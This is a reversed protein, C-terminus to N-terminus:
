KSINEYIILGHDEQLILDQKGDGNMDGTTVFEGQAIPVISLDSTNLYIQNSARDSTLIEVNGDGNADIVGSLRQASASITSTTQCETLDPKIIRREIKPKCPRYGDCYGNNVEEVIELSQDKSSNALLFVRDLNGYYANRDFECPMLNWNWKNYSTISENRATKHIYFLHESSCVVLLDVIGDRDLDGAAMQFGPSGSKCAFGISELSKVALQQMNKVFILSHNRYDSVIVEVDSLSPNIQILSHSNAIDCMPQFLCYEKPLELRKIENASSNIDISVHILYRKEQQAIVSVFEKLPSNNPESNAIMAIARVAYNRYHELGNTKAEHYNGNRNGLLIKFGQTTGVLIDDTGDRDIDTLQTSIVTDALFKRRASSVQPMASSRLAPEGGLGLIVYIGNSLAGIIDQRGDNDLDRVIQAPYINYRSKYPTQYVVSADVLRKMTAPDTEKILYRRAGFSSLTILESGTLSKTLDLYGGLHSDIGDLSFSHKQIFTRTGRNNESFITYLTQRKITDIQSVVINTDIGPAVEVLSAVGPESSGFEEENWLRTPYLTAGNLYDNWVIWRKRSGDTTILDTKGDVDLDAAALISYHSSPLEELIRDNGFPENSSQRIISYISAHVGNGVLRIIDEQKDGNVDGSFIPQEKNQWYEPAADIKQSMILANNRYSLVQITGGPKLIENYLVIFDCYGSKCNNLTVSKVDMDGTWLRERPGLSGDQNQRFLFLRAPLSNEQNCFMVVGAIREARQEWWFLRGDKCSSDGTPIIQPPSAFAVQSASYRFLDNRTVACSGSACDNRPPIVSIRVPGIQGLRSPIMIELEQESVFTGETPPGDGFQVKTGPEFGHGYLHLPVGGVTSWVSPQARDLQVSSPIPNSYSGPADSCSDIFPVLLFVLLLRRVLSLFTPNSSRTM